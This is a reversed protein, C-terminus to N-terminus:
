GTLLLDCDVAIQLNKTKSFHADLMYFCKQYMLRDRSRVPNM